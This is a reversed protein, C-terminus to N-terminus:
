GAASDQQSPIAGVLQATTELADALAGFGIMPLAKAARAKITSVDEATLDLLGGNAIKQTLRYLKLKADQSLQQDEPLQSTLAAYSATAVTASDSFEKGNPMLLMKDFDIKM